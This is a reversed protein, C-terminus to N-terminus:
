GLARDLRVVATILALHTFAHPFNGLAKGSYGIKEAYLELHNAYSFMKELTLRAEQLRGARTLCEVLWFSCVGFAGQDDAPGDSVSEGEYREVLVDYTLEKQARDLTALWRPDTPGVFEVVPMLLLSADLAESGYHRVFSGKKTNWGNSMVEEYIADRQDIWLEEDAPLGRQRALRIGRDLAVWSLVKSSVFNERSDRVDWM